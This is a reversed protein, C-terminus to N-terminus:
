SGQQRKFKTKIAAWLKQAGASSEARLQAWFEAPMKGAIFGVAAGLAFTGIM